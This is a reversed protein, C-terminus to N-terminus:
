IDRTHAHAALRSSKYAGRSGIRVLFFIGHPAEVRAIDLAQEPFDAVYALETNIDIAVFRGRWKPEYDARYKREYIMTGREAIERATLPNDTMKRM